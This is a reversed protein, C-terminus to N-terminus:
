KGQKLADFLAEDELESDSKSSRLYIDRLEDETLFDQVRSNQYARTMAERELNRKANKRLTDAFWRVFQRNEPTFKGTTAASLAQAMQTDFARSGGAPKKDSESIMGTDGSAKVIFTPMMSDALPNQTDIMAILNASSSATDKLRRVVPDKNWDTVMNIKQNQKAIELKANSVDSNDSIPRPVGGKPEPPTTTQPWYSGHRQALIQEWAKRDEEPALRGRVEVIAQGTKTDWGTPVASPQGLKQLREYDEFAASQRKISRDEADLAMQQKKLDRDAQMEALKVTTDIGKSAGEAIKGLGYVAWNEPRIYRKKAM